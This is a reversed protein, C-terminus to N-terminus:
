GDKEEEHILYVRGEKRHFRFTQQEKGYRLQRRYYDYISQSGDLKTFIGCSAAFTGIVAVTAILKDNRSPSIFCYVVSVVLSIFTIVLITVLEPIGVGRWVERRLTINEPM